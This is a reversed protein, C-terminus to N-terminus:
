RSYFLSYWCCILSCCKMCDVCLDYCDVKRRPKQEAIEELRKNVIELENELLRKQIRLTEEEQDNLSEYPPKDRQAEATYSERNM